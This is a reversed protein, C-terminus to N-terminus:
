CLSSDHHAMIRAVYEYLSELEKQGRFDKMNSASIAIYGLLHKLEELTYRGILHSSGPDEVLRSFYDYENVSFAKRTLLKKDRARLRLTIKESSEIKFQTLEM